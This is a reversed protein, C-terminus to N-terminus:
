PSGLIAINRMRGATAQNALADSEWETSQSRLRATSQIRYPTNITWFHFSKTTIQIASHRATYCSNIICFSGESAWWSNTIQFIYKIISIYVMSFQWFNLIRTWDHWILYSLHVANRVLIFYLMISIHFLINSYLLVGSVWFLLVLM